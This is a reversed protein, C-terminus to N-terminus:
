EDGEVKEWGTGEDKLEIWWCEAYLCAWFVESVSLIDGYEVGAGNYRDELIRIKDGVNLM